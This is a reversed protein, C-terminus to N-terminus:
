FVFQLQRLHHGRNPQEARYQKYLPLVVNETQLKQKECEDHDVFPPLHIAQKKHSAQWVSDLAMQNENAADLDFDPCYQLWLLLPASHPM